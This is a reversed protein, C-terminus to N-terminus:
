GGFEAAVADADYVKVGGALSRAQMWDAFSSSSPPPAAQTAPPPSRPAPKPAPAPAPPANEDTVPLPQLPATSM